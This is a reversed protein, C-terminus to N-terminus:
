VIGRPSVGDRKPVRGVRDSRLSVHMDVSARRYCDTTFARHRVSVPSVRPQWSAVLFCVPLIRGLLLAALRSAAGTLHLQVKVM